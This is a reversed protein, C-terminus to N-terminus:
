YLLVLRNYFDFIFCRFSYRADLVFTDKLLNITREITVRQRYLNDWHETGRPVGPYFRFVKDPYTYVCKGYASETCPHECTCIRKSGKQVSSHCVWKFRLSRNEGSQMPIPKPYM